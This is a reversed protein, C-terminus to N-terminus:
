RLFRAMWILDIDVGDERIQRQQRGEVQFGFEEYLALAPLNTAFVRLVIKDISRQGAWALAHGMMSRGIGRRRHTHAVAIGLEAVHRSLTYSPEPFLNLVGVLQGGGEAVLLLHNPVTAPDDLVPQWQADPAFQTVYFAGGEACVANLINLIHPADASVARRITTTSVPSPVISTHSRLIPLLPSLVFM